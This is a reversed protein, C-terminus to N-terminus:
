GVPFGTQRGGPRTILGSNLSGPLLTLCELRRSAYKARGDPFRGVSDLMALAADSVIIRFEDKSM